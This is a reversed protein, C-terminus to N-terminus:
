GGVRRAVLLYGLTQRHDQHLRELVMAVSQILGCLVGAAQRGPGRGIMAALYLSTMQGITAWFGGRPQIQVVELGVRSALQGLGKSTFRYGDTPTDMVRWFFPTTLILHGGVTLIRACEGFFLEPCELENVVQTCVVTDISMSQFPLRQADAIVAVSAARNSQIDSGIYRDCDGAFLERYRGDGCGVDVLIGRM